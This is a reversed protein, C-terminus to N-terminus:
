HRSTQWQSATQWYKNQKLRSSPL